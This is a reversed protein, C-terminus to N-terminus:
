GPGPAEDPDPHPRSGRGPLRTPHRFTQEGRFPTTDVESLEDVAARLEDVLVEAGAGARDHEQVADPHPAADVDGEDLPQASPDDPEVQRSEALGRLWAAGERHFPVRIEDRREQ